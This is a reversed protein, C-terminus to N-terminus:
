EIAKCTSVIRGFNLFINLQTHTISDSYLFSCTTIPGDLACKEYQEVVTNVSTLQQAM